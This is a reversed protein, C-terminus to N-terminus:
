RMHLCSTAVVRSLESSKLNKKEGINRRSSCLIGRAEFKDQDWLLNGTGYLQHHLKHGKHCRCIKAM